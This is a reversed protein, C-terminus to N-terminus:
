VQQIAVEWKGRGGAGPVLMITEIETNTQKLDKMYTTDHLGETDPGNVYLGGPEDMNDFM